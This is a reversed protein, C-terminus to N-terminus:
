FSIRLGLMVQHMFIDDTKARANVRYGAGDDYINTTSSKAEGLGAFRYGLDLALNDTLDWAAGAGVNWAFNTNMNRSSSTSGSFTGFTSGDVDFSGSGKSNIFAMGLGGGLYPTIPTGTKIDFYANAFLTQIDHKQKERILLNDTGDDRRRSGKGEVESYMAYELEARVPFKFAKDFNYGVSLAGGFANDTDDGFGLGSSGYRDSINGKQSDMQTYGYVFKPTVYIGLDAALAQSQSTVLGLILAFAVVLKKM